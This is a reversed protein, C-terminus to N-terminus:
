TGMCLDPNHRALIDDSRFSSLTKSPRSPRKNVVLRRSFMKFHTALPRRACTERPTEEVRMCSRRSLLEPPWIMAIICVASGRCRLLRVPLV